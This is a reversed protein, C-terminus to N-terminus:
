RVVGYITVGGQRFLVPLHRRFKDEQVPYTNYELPAVVIYRIGYKEIIQRATEWSPTTYLTSIDEQRGAFLAGGGRWQSEHGPWGLVAPQGSYTSMRAYQTYSGGVAEALPGLPARWLTQMAAWEDPQQRAIHIGANLTWGWNSKFGNTRNPLALVPYVLGLLLAAVWVAQAVPQWSARQRALWAVAYAAALGWLLWGQYYFKFVTNM